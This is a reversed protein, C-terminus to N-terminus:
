RGTDRCERPETRARKWATQGRTSTSMRESPKVQKTKDAKGRLRQMCGMPSDQMGQQGLCAHLNCIKLSLAVSIDEAEFSLMEAWIASSREFLRLGELLTSAAHEKGKEKRVM